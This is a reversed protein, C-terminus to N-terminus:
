SASESRRTVLCLPLWLPFLLPTARALERLAGLGQHPAGARDFVVLLAPQEPSQEHRFRALFDLKALLRKLVKAVGGRTKWSLRRERLEPRVFVVYSVLMTYSFLEVNAFLEIGVHFTVGVWLAVIRLRPLWPGLALLLETTLAAIAALQGFWPESLWAALSAPVWHEATERFPAFRLLMVTGTRWDSDLVKGLSSSLYVVSLQAGVLHAAWRPAKASSGARLPLFSRDCPTFAVLLAVLLLTYRNNHYHLRDCAMGYLGCLAALLLAPRALIGLLALAAALAMCGLLLEYGVRSPVLAEPLLPMHFADGFYGGALHERLLKLTLLLLLTAVAVRLLGLLYPDREESLFGPLKV